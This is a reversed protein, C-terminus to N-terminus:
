KLQLKLTRIRFINFIKMIVGDAIVRKLTNNESANNVLETLRSGDYVEENTVDLSAIKKRSIM